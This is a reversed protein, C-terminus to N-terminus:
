GIPSLQRKVPVAVRVAPVVQAPVVRVLAMPAVPLRATVVPHEAVSAMAVSVAWPTELLAQVEWIM